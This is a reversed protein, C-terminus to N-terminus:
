RVIGINVSTTNGNTNANFNLNPNVNVGGGPTGSVPGVEIGRRLATNAANGILASSAQLVSSQINNVGNVAVVGNSNVISQACPDGSARFAATAIAPAVTAIKTLSGATSSASGVTRAGNSGGSGGFGTGGFGGTGFGGGGFGGGGFGGFGTAGNGANGAQDAFVSAPNFISQAGSQDVSHGASAIGTNHDANNACPNAVTPPPLLLPWVATLLAVLVALVRRM